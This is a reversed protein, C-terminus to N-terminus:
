NDCKSNFQQLQITKAGKITPMLKYGVRCQNTKGEGWKVILQGQEQEVRAYIQGGQGVSGVTLGKADVVEAGFPVPDGLRTANILVPTGRKTDYKMKVVAGSYPAVKQSTSALEVDDPMGKPDLYIDNLQYPNLYPVLAYGKSDIRVGPYSSVSAGEAGKAEVLAFTDSTYPSFTVGGSHAVVTGNLGGAASKYNKGSSVSGNMSTVSSRYTGNLSGSAGGGKNANMATAGYSYQNEDGATGSVSLQQGSRGSTDHTFDSRLQPSNVQDARGMPLSFSLLYNTQSVGFTSFTRSATLGYSVQKYRNSYGMQYQTDKGDKNWYDQMSGSMYLQGWGEPLGQGVTMTMRNKARSISDPSYGKAVADRTHMATMFDMYGDTSFRYAALSFNSNTEKILKSYSIQYSQGSQSNKVQEADTSRSESGLHTRAQTVDFAIAGYPTGFASGLQLAYYDQSLQLGGYGTLANTLGYQYTGQYLAPNGRLGDMRLEGGTISYRSSGPRLLQAVAAYPVNFTQETGDNEHVTVVLDGGYGTPYLDNILFEGPMVTTEYLIQGGQRVTVRANTRAIGRIDPAYGRLSEPLMREDTALQVGTFPLTDFLEGTTNSQGVLARARLLPVDRQLYTNINNYEQIGGDSRSYSGNHRLYWAGANLGANLGAYLSNYTDGRSESSYGNINYGLMLAPVGSDWIEPNVTGRATSQMYLQPIIIDLRQENSDYNVQADKLKGKLDFCSDIGKLFDSPLKSYDFAINKILDPTLCPYVSKDERARFEVDSNFILKDNVYIATRYVGPTASSGNAFRSLDLANKDEINLFSADFEMDNASGKVEPELNAAWSNGMFLASLLALTLPSLQCIKGPQLSKSM